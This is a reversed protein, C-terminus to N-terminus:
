QRKLEELKKATLRECDTRTYPKPPTKITAPPGGEGNDLWLSYNKDSVDGHFEMVKSLIANNVGDSSCDFLQNQGYYIWSGGHLAYSNANQFAKCTASLPGSKGNDIKTPYDTVVVSNTAFDISLRHGIGCNGEGSDDAEIGSNTWSSIEYEESDPKLMGMFMSADNERCIHDDRTCEIEVATQGVLQKDPSPDTSVWYGEVHAYAIGPQDNHIVTLPVKTKTWKPGRMFGNTIDSITYDWYKPNDIVVLQVCTDIRPSFFAEVRAPKDNNDIEDKGRQQCYRDLQTQLTSISQQGKCTGCILAALVVALLLSRRSMLEGACLKSPKNPGYYLEIFILL